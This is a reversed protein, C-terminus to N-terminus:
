LEVLNVIHAYSGVQLHWREAVYTHLSLFIHYNLQFKEKLKNSRMHIFMNLRNEVCLFQITILSPAVLEADLFKDDWFTTLLRKSNPDAYYYKDLQNWHIQKFLSEYHSRNIEDWLIGKDWEFSNGNYKIKSATPNNVIVTLTLKDSLSIGNNELESVVEEYIRRDEKVIVSIAKM